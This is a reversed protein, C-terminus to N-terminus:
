RIKIEFITIVRFHDKREFNCFVSELHITTDGLIPM